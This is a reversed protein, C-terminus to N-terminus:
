RDGKARTMGRILDDLCDDLREGCGARIAGHRSPAPAEADRDLSFIRAGSSVEDPMHELGTGAAAGRRAAVAPGRDAFPVRDAADLEAADLYRLCSKGQMERVM